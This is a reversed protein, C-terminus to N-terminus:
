IEVYYPNEAEFKANKYSVKRVPLDDSVKGVAWFKPPPVHERRAMDRRWQM